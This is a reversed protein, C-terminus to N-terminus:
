CVCGLASPSPDSFPLTQSHCPFQNIIIVPLPSNHPACHVARRSPVGKSVRQLPALRSPRAELFCSHLDCKPTRKGSHPSVLLIWSDRDCRRSGLGLTISCCPSNADGRRAHPIPCLRSPNSWYKAAPLIVIADREQSLPLHFLLPPQFFQM